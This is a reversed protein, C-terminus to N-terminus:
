WPLNGIQEDPIEELECKKSDTEGKIDNQSCFHVEKVTLKNKQNQKGDRGVWQQTFLEGSIIFCQGKSVYNSITEAIKNYAVCDQFLKKSDGYNWAVSFECIAQGDKGKKLNPDRVMRCQLTFKNLM